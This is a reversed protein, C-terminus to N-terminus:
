CLLTIFHLHDPAFHSPITFSSSERFFNKVELHWHRLINVTLPLAFPLGLFLEVSCFSPVFHCLILADSLNLCDAVRQSTLEVGLRNCLQLVHNFHTGALTLALRVVALTKCVDGEAFLERIAEFAFGEFGRVNSVRETHADGFCAGNALRHTPLLNGGRLLNRDVRQLWRLLFAGCPANEKQEWFTLWPLSQAPM